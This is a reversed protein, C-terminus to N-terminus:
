EDADEDGPVPADPSDNARADAENSAFRLAGRRNMRAVERWLPHRKPKPKPETPRSPPRSDSTSIPM